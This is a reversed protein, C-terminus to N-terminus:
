VGFEVALLQWQLLRNREVPWEQHTKGSKVRKCPSRAGALWTRCTPPAHQTVHGDGQEVRFATLPPHINFIPLTLILHQM